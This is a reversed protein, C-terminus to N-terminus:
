FSQPTQAAVEWNQLGNRINMTLTMTVQSM